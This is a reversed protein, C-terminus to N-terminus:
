LVEEQICLIDSLTGREAKDMGPVWLEGVWWRARGETRQWTV